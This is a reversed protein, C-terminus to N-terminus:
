PASKQEEEATATNKPLDRKPEPNCVRTNHRKIIAAVNPTCSYSLKVTNPNFIKRLKSGPPLAPQNAPPVKERDEDNRGYQLALQVM